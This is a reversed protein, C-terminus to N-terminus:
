TRKNAGKIFLKEKAVELARKVEPTRMIPVGYKNDVVEGQETIRIRGDVTGEPQALLAEFSSGGGRGVAGGRWQPWREFLAPRTFALVLMPVDQHTDALSDLFQLTEDDAWHVDELQVILPCAERAAMRRFMQAAARLAAVPFGLQPFGLALGRQQVGSAMSSM